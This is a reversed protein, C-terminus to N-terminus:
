CFSFCFNSTHPYRKWLSVCYIPTTPFPSQIPHNDWTDYQPASDFIEREQHTSLAKDNSPHRQAEVGGEQSVEEEEEEEEVVSEFWCVTQRRLVNNTEGLRPNLDVDGWEVAFIIDNKLSITHQTRSQTHVLLLSGRFLFSKCRTESYWVVLNSSTQNITKHNRLHSIFLVPKPNFGFAM